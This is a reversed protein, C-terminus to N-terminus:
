QDNRFSRHAGNPGKPRVATGTSCATRRTASADIKQAATQFLRAFNPLTSSLDDISISEGTDPDAFVYNDHDELGDLAKNLQTAAKAVNKLIANLRFNSPVDKLKSLPPEPEGRRQAELRLQDNNARNVSVQLGRALVARQQASPMRDDDGLANRFWRVMKQDAVDKGLRVREPAEPPRDTRNVMNRKM